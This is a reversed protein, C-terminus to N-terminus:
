TRHIFSIRKGRWVNRFLIIYIRGKVATKFKGPKSSVDFIKHKVAVYIPKGEKGRYEKLEELTLGIYFSNM